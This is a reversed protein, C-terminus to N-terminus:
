ENLRPGIEKPIPCNYVGGTEAMWEARAKELMDPDEALRIAALALIKGATLMAKHAMATNGHATYQWTHSATGLTATAMMVQATPMVYSADGVDTSGPMAYNMRVYKPVSDDLVKEATPNGVAPAILKAVEYAKESFQTKGVEAWAEECVKGLVDNNFLDTMGSKIECEWTTGTMISAGRAVDQVRAFIEKVQYGKPARIYFLLKAKAQVVNPSTGGADIYAHHIRAEQVIHERLFQVGVIMLDAADLASRGKDPNAAAHAAHGYFTFEAQINALMSVGLISNGDSPHPAIAVDLEGFVGERAM